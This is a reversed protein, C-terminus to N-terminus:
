PRGDKFSPRMTVRRNRNRAKIMILNKRKWRFVKNLDETEKNNKPKKKGIIFTKQRWRFVTINNKPKKNGIIIIKRLLNRGFAHVSKWSIKLSPLYQEIISSTLSSKQHTVEPRLTPRNGSKKTLLWNSFVGGLRNLISSEIKWPHYLFISTKCGSNKYIYCSFRLVATPDSFSTWKKEWIKWIKWNKKFYKKTKFM